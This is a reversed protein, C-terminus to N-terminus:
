GEIVLVGSGDLPAALPLDASLTCSLRGAWAGRAPPAGLLSGVVDADSAVDAQEVVLRATLRQGGGTPPAAHLTGEARLPRSLVHLALEFRGAEIWGGLSPASVARRTDGAQLALERAEAELAYRPAGDGALALGALTLTTEPDLVLEVDVDEVLVRPLPGTLWTFVSPDLGVEDEAPADPVAADRTLDLEVDVGSAAVSALGGLDGRVLRVLDYAADVRRVSLERLVGSGSVARARVGELELGTIWSGAFSGV